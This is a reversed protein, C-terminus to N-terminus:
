RFRSVREKPNKNHILLDTFTLVLTRSFILVGFERQQNVGKDEGMPINKDVKASSAQFL